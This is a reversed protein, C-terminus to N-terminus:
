DNKYEEIEDWRFVPGDLCTYKGHIMCHGCIGLGCQMLRETSVFLQDSHFGKEKLLDMIKRIMIPPGCLFAVTNDKKLDVKKMHDIIMGEKLDYCIMSDPNDLKDVSMMLNYNKKWEPSERKFLVDSVSRYGFFLDVNKYDSRHQDIYDIIGKLPAVGCGGGIIMINNGKLQEMPYGKGYPGRVFLNDGERLQSLSHTVSGVERIDLRMFKDSYSCISIPAEGIGPISVQVFQGPQHKVKFDIVISFNDPSERFFETVKVKQPIYPNNM